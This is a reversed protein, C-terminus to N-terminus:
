SGTRIFLDRVYMRMLRETTKQPMLKMRVLSSKRV